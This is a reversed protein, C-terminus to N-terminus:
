LEVKSGIKAEIEGLLQSADIDLAACIAIFELIDIRRECLEIKNVFSPPKGLSKALGRQTINQRVRAERIAEIAKRYQISVVWRRQM